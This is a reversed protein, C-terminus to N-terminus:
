FSILGYGGTKVIQYQGASIVSPWGLFGVPSNFELIMLMKVKDIYGSFCDLSGSFSYFGQCSRDPSQIKLVEENCRNVSM